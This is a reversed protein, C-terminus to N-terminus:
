RTLVAEVIERLRHAYQEPTTLLPEVGERAGAGLREALGRDSLIRVLAEALADPDRPPVLLGNECDRVLDAIGGVDSGVV